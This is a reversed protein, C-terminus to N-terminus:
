TFCSYLSLSHETAFAVGILISLAFSFSLFSRAHNCRGGGIRSLWTHTTMAWPAREAASPLAALAAAAAAKDALLGTVCRRRAAATLTAASARGITLTSANAVATAADRPYMAFLARLQWVSVVGKGKHSLRACLAKSLEEMRTFSAAADVVGGVGGGGGGSSDPVDVSVSCLTTLAGTNAAANAAASNAIANAAAAATATPSEL